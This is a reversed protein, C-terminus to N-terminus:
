ECWDGIEGRPQITAAGLQITAVKQLIQRGEDMTKWICSIEVRAPNYCSRTPNFCSRSPDAQMADVTKWIGGMGSVPNITASANGDPVIERRM